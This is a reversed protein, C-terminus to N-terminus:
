TNSKWAVTCCYNNHKQEMGPGENVTYLMNCHAAVKVANTASTTVVAICFVVGATELRRWVTTDRDCVM